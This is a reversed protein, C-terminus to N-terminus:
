LSEMGIARRVSPQSAWAFMLVTRLGEFLMRQTYTSAAGWGQLYAQQAEEPADIFPLSSRSAASYGRDVLQLLGRLQLREARPLRGAYENLYEGVHAPGDVIGM